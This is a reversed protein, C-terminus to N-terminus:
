GCFTAAKKRAASVFPRVQVRSLGVFAQRSRRRGAQGFIPKSTPLSTQVAQGFAQGAQENVQEAQGITPKSTPGATQVARGFAQGARETPMAEVTPESPQSQGFAQEAREAPTAEVTPESPQSQGSAQEALEAVQAAQGNVQEAQGFAPKSTPEAAQETPRFVQGGQGAAEAEVTQSPRKPFSEKEVSEKKSSIIIDKLQAKGQAEGETLLLTLARAHSNQANKPSKQGNKPNEGLLLTKTRNPSVSIGGRNKANEDVTASTLLQSEMRTEGIPVVKSGTPSVSANQAKGRQTAWRKANAQASWAKRQAHRKAERERDLDIEQKITAFAQAALCKLQSPRRGVGYRVIADLVKLRVKGPLGGM